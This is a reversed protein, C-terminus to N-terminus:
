TRPLFEVTEVIDSLRDLASEPAEGWVTAHFVVIDGDVDTIWVRDVQGPAQKYRRWLQGIEDVSM